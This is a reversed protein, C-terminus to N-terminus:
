AWTFMWIPKIFLTKLYQIYWFDAKNLSKREAQRCRFCPVRLMPLISHSPM